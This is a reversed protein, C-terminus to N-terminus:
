GPISPLRASRQSFFRYLLVLDIVVIALLVSYGGPASVLKMQPLLRSLGFGVIWADFSMCIRRFTEADIKGILM